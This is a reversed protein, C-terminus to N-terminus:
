SPFSSFYPHSCNNRYFIYGLNKWNAFVQKSFWIFKDMCYIIDAKINLFALGERYYAFGAATFTCGATQDVMQQNRVTTLDPKLALVDALKRFVFHTRQSFIDLHDELVRCSAKVRTHANLIQYLLRQEDVGIKGFFLAHLDYVFQQFCYTQACFMCFTIRMFKGTTLFLTDTDCSRQGNTRLQNDSVLRDRRQVNRNLCLYEVKQM